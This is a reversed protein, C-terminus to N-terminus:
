WVAQDYRREPALVGDWYQRVSQQPRCSAPFRPLFDAAPLGPSSGLTGLDDPAPRSRAALLRSSLQLQMGPVAPWCKGSTVKASFSLGLRGGEQAPDPCLLSESRGLRGVLLLAGSEPGPWGPGDPVPPFWCCPSALMRALYAAWCTWSRPLSSLVRQLLLAHTGLGPARDVCIRSARLSAMCGPASWPV